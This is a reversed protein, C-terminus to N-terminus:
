DRLLRMSLRDFCSAAPATMDTLFIMEICRASEDKSLSLM